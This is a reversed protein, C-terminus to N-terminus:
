LLHRPEVKYLRIAALKCLHDLTHEISPTTAKRQMITIPTTWWIPFITYLAINPVKNLRNLHGEVGNRIVKGKKDLRNKGPWWAPAAYVLILLICAHVIQRMVYPKVGQVTNGLMNLGSVAKQGKSAMKKAHYKFSLRSDFYIGLWRM